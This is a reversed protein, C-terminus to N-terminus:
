RKPTGPATRAVEAPLKPPSYSLPKENYRQWFNNTSQMWQASTPCVWELARIVENFKRPLDYKLIPEHHAIRNRLDRISDLRDFIENRNYTTVNNTKPDITVAHFAKHLCPVWLSKEYTKSGLATWFGFSLEAVLAGTSIPRKSRTLEVKAAAIKERQRDELPAIDFWIEGFASVLSRNMANRVAVEAQTVGYLAESIATNREYIQVARVRSGGARLVYPRFREPSLALEIADVDNAKYGLTKM